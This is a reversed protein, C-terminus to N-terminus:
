TGRDVPLNDPPEDLYRAVVFGVEYCCLAGHSRAYLTIHGRAVLVSLMADIVSPPVAPDETGASGGLDEALRLPTTWIRKTRPCAGLGLAALVRFEAPALTRLAHAFLVRHFTVSQDPRM